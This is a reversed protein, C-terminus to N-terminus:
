NIPDEARWEPIRWVAEVPRMDEGLQVYEFQARLITNVKEATWAQWDIAPPIAEAHSRAEITELEDDLARVRRQFEEEDIARALLAVGLLRRDEDIQRERTTDREVVLAEDAPLTLRTAEAKVWPLLVSEGVSYPRGHDALDRNRCRYTVYEPNRGNPYKYATLTQGCHCRILSYFLFPAHAKKGGKAARRPALEPYQQRIIWAVATSYWPKGFRTPVGRANLLRAAGLFSGAEVFADRIADPNEGHRQGYSTRGIHEGRAKRVRATEASREQAWRRVAQAVSALINAVMEGSATSFDFTGEKALHVRVGRDRCLAALSTWEELSRTLRSLDYSVVDSVHGTEIRERLSRYGPRLHEKGGGGSRGWDELIEPDACGNRTAIARVAALQADYSV